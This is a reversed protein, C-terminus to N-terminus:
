QAPSISFLHKVIHKQGDVEAYPYVFYNLPGQKQKPELIIDRGTSLTIRHEDLQGFYADKNTKHKWAESIDMPLWSGDVAAFAWCHYGKLSATKDQPLSVGIEFRAPIRVARAMGIFYAHFDTCNGKGVDCAHDFSGLGWGQGSKDYSMHEYTADFLARVAPKGSQDGIAKLGLTRARHDVSVLANSGLFRSPTKVTSLNKHAGGLMRRIVTATLRLKVSDTQGSWEVYSLKNGFRSETKEAVTVADKSIGSIVKVQIKEVTQVLSKQPQPLWLQTKKGNKAAPIEVDLTLSLRRGLNAVKNTTSRSSPGKKGKVHPGPAQCGVLSIVTLLSILASSKKM